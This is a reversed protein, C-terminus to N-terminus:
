LFILNFPSIFITIIDQINILYNNHKILVVISVSLLQFLVNYNVNFNILSIAIFQFKWKIIMWMFIGVSLALLFIGVGILASSLVAIVLELGLSRDKIKYANQYSFSQLHVYLLLCTFLLWRSYHYPWSTPVTRSFYTNSISYENL